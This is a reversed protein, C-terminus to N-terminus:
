ELVRCYLDITAVASLAALESREPRGVEATGCKLRERFFHRSVVIAAWLFGHCLVSRICAVARIADTTDAVEQTRRRRIRPTLRKRACEIFSLWEINM